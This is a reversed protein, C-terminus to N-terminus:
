SVTCVACLLYRATNGSRGYTQTVYGALPATTVLGAVVWHHQNWMCCVPVQVCIVCVCVFDTNFSVCHSISGYGARWGVVDRLLRTAESSRNRAFYTLNRLGMMGMGRFDTAPDVGQFGIEGWEETLRGTRRVGPRLLEWLEELEREHQANETDYKEACQALFFALLRYISALSNLCQVLNPQVRVSWSEKTKSIKKISAIRDAFELLNGDFKKQLEVVVSKLQKSAHLARDFEIAMEASFEGASCIREIESKRTLFHLIVKWLRLAIAALTAWMTAFCNAQREVQLKSNVMVAPRAPRM